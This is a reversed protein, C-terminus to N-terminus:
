KSDGKLSSYEEIVPYFCIGILALEMVVDVPLSNKFNEIEEITMESIKKDSIM